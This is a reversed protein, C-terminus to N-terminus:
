LLVSLGFQVAHVESEVKHAYAYYGYVSEEGEGFYSQFRYEVRMAVDDHLFVKLGVGVNLVNIVFSTRTFPVGFLPISNAIGYGVLVFPVGRKSSIFNYSVNGNLVYVPNARSSLMCIIEPEFELGGYVFYGVRPSVLFAGSGSSGTGLTVYQYSGSLSMEVSRGERPQGWAPLVAALLAIVSWISKM